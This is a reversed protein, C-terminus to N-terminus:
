LPLVPMHDDGLVPLRSGDHDADLGNSSGSAALLYTM